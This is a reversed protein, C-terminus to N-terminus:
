VNYSNKETLIQIKKSNNLYDVQNEEFTLGIVNSEFNINIRSLYFCDNSFKLIPLIVLDFCSTDFNDTDIWFIKKNESIIHNYLIFNTNVENENLNKYIAIKQANKYIDKTVLKNIVKLSKQYYDM